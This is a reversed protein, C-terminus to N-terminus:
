TVGTNVTSQAALPKEMLLLPTQQLMLTADGSPCYSAKGDATAANALADLLMVKPLMLKEMQLVQCKSLVWYKCNRSCCSPKEMQLPMQQFPIEVLSQYSSAANALANPLM